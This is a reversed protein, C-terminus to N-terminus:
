DSSHFISFFVKDIECIQRSRTKLNNLYYRFVRLTWWYVMLGPSAANLRADLAM